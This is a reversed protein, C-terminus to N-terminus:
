IQTVICYALRVPLACLWSLLLLVVLSGLWLLAFPASSFGLRCHPCRDSMTPAEEDHYLRGPSDQVFPQFVRGSIRHPCSSSANTAHGLQGCSTCPTARARARAAAAATRRVNRRGPHRDGVRPRRPQRQGNLPCHESAPNSHAVLTSPDVATAYCICPERAYEPWPLLPCYPSHIRFHTPRRGTLDPRSTFCPCLPPPSPPRPAPAQAADDGAQEQADAESSEPDDDWRRPRWGDLPDDLQQDDDGLSLWGGEDDEADAESSEPDDDLGGPPWGNLPDDLQPVYRDGLTDNVADYYDGPGVDDEPEDFPHPRWDDSSSNWGDSGSVYPEELAASNLGLPHHGDAHSGMDEVSPPESDSGSDEEGPHWAADPDVDYPRGNRVGAHAQAVTDCGAWCCLVNVVRYDFCCCLVCVDCFFSM